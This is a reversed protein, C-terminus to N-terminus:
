YTEGVKVRENHSFSLKFENQVIYSVVPANM